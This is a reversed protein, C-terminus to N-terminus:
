IKAKQLRTPKTFWSFFPTVFIPYIFIVFAWMVVDTLYHYSVWENNKMYGLEGKKKDIMTGVPMDKPLSDGYGTAKYEVERGDKSQLIYETYYKQYNAGQEFVQRESSIITGSIELQRLPFISICFYGALIFLLPIVNPTKYLKLFAVVQKM